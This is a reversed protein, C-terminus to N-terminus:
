CRSSRSPAVSSCPAISRQTCCRSEAPSSGCWRRPNARFRMPMAAIPDSAVAGTDPVEVVVLAEPAGEMGALTAWFREGAEEWSPLPPDVLRALWAALRPHEEAGSVQPEAAEPDIVAETVAGPDRGHTISAVGGGLRM